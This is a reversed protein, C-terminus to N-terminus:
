PRLWVMISTPGYLIFPIRGRFVVRDPSNLEVWGVLSWLKIGEAGAHMTRTVAQKMARRFAMRRELQSAVNEAVIQADLEPRKVEVININVNKGTM